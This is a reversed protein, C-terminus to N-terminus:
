IGTGSAGDGTGNNQADDTYSGAKLATTVSSADAPPRQSESRWSGDSTEVAVPPDVVSPAEGRLYQGYFRM